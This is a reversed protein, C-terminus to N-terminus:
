TVLAATNHFRLWLQLRLSGFSKSLAPALKHLKPEPKRSQTLSLNM